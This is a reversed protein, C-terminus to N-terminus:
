ETRNKRLYVFIMMSILLIFIALSGFFLPKNLYWRVFFNSSITFDNIEKISKNGTKDSAIIKLNQVSNDEPISIILNSDDIKEVNIAKDNLLVEIKDLMLNDEISLEVKKITENYIANSKLNHVAITPATKDIVFNIGAKKEEFINENINGATDKSTTIIRYVGDKEFLSSKLNYTYRYWASERNQIFTYDIGEKLEKIQGNISLKVSSEVLQNVNLEDFIINQGKKNYHKNIIKSLTDSFVYTSGFRNISYMINTESKNGAKDNLFAQITYVDDNEKDHKMDNFVFVEGNLQSSRTGDIEVAGRHDGILNISLENIDYNTDKAFVTPIVEGSNASNAEVGSIILEPATKDIYFEEKNYDDMKNGAKDIYEIDFSYLADQDYKIIAINKDNNKTWNSVVPFSKIIGDDVATGIINIRSSDFNHEDITITAIRPQNFYNNNKANNNDYSINITPKTKDLVFKDSYSRNINFDMMDKGDVFVEYDADENFIMKTQYVANISGSNGSVLQWQLRLRDLIGNKRVVVNILESDFNMENIKLTLVRNEKYFDTFTNDANYNDYEAELVPADLDRYIVREIQSMNGANDKAIIKIAIRGNDESQLIDTNFKVDIKDNKSKSLNYCLENIIKGNVEVDISSLGSSDRVEDIDSVLYSITVNQNVWEKHDIIKTSGDIKLSSIVPNKNDIILNKFEKENAEIIKQGLNNESIKQGLNDETQIYANFFKNTLDIKFTYIEKDQDIEYPLVRQIIENDVVINLFTKDANIGSSSNFDYIDNLKVIIDVDDNSCYFKGPEFFFLKGKEEKITVTEVEPVMFDRYLTLTKETDNGAKDIVIIQILLEGSDEKYYESLKATDITDVIDDIKKDLYTNKVYKIGNINIILEKIGSNDINEVLDSIGYDIIVDECFWMKNNYEIIKSSDNKSVELKSIAPEKDDILIPLDLQKDNCKYELNEIQTINEVNDSVILSMTFNTDKEDIEFIYNDSNQDEKKGQYDRSEEKGNELFKIKLIPHEEIGSVASFKNEGDKIVVTVIINSNTYTGLEDSYIKGKETTLVAEEVVPELNDIDNIEIKESKVVNGLKDKVEIYYIGNEYVTKNFYGNNIDREFIPESGEKYIAFDEIGVGSDSAEVFIDFGSRENSYRGYEEFKNIAKHTNIVPADNDVNIIVEESKRINNSEDKVYFYYIGKEDFCFTNEEVFKLNNIDIDKDKKSYAYSLISDLKQDYAEIKVEVGTGYEEGASNVVSNCYTLDINSIVPKERDITIKKNNDLQDYVKITFVKEPLTDFEFIGDKSEIEIRENEDNYYSLIYKSIGAGDDNAYVTLSNNDVDFEYSKEEFEPPTYDITNIEINVPKFLIIGSKKNKIQCNYTANQCVNFNNEDTFSNEEGDKVLSYCYDEKSFQNEKDEKLNIEVNFSKAWYENDNKVGDVPIINTEIEPLKEKIGLIDIQFSSSNNFEDILEIKYKDNSEFVLQVELSSSNIDKEDIKEGSLNLVKYKCTDESVNFLVSAKEYMRNNNDYEIYQLDLNEHVPAITDVNLEIPENDLTKVYLVYEKNEEVVFQPEEQYKPIEEKSSVLAYQIDTLKDANKMTVSLVNNEVIISEVDKSSFEQKKELASVNTIRINLFLNTIVLFISIIKKLKKM